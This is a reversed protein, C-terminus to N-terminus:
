RIAIAMRSLNRAPNASRPPIRTVAGDATRASRPSRRQSSRATM